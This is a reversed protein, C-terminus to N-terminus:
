RVEAANAARLAALRERAADPDFGAGPGAHALAHAYMQAAAAPKRLRDLAVALDYARAASSPELQWASAFAQYAESWRQQAALLRGLATHLPAAQPRRVLAQRLLSEQAAADGGASLEALAALAVPHDPELALVRRYLAAADGHEGRAEAIAALGLLADPQRADIAIAQRYLQEAEQLRGTRWAAYAQALPPEIPAGRRVVAAEPAANGPTEAVATAPAPRRVPRAPANRPAPKPAGADVAAPPTAAQVSGADGEGRGAASPEEVPAAPPAVAVAAPPVPQQLWWWASAGVLAACVAALAVYAPLRWARRAAPPMAAPVTQAQPRGAGEAPRAHTDPSHAALPTGAEEARRLADLLLSM